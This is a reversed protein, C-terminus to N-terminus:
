KLSFPLTTPRVAGVWKGFWAGQRQEDIVEFTLLDHIVYEIASTDKVFYLSITYVDDNLLKGPVSLVSTHWGKAIMTPQTTVNFVCVGATTNLVLSLNMNVMEASSYFEFRIDFPTNVDIINGAEPNHLVIEASSLRVKDNGPM